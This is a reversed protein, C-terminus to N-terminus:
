SAEAPRAFDEIVTNVAAARATRALTALRRLESDGTTHGAASLGFTPSGALTVIAEVQAATDLLRDARTRDHPPLHVRLQQTRDHLAARLDPTGEAPSVRSGLRAIVESAESVSQRLEYELEAAASTPRIEFAPRYRYVSWRCVDADIRPVLALVSDSRSALVVQGADLAATTAPGPPLGQADGAGPLRVAFTEADGVLELLSLRTFPVDPDLEGTHDNAIHRDAFHGLVDLVDDASTRGARWAAAWVALGCAPWAPVLQHDHTSTMTM